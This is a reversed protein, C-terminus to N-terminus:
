GNNQAGETNEDTVSQQAGGSNGGRPLHKKTKNIFNRFYTKKWYPIALFIAVVIASFM